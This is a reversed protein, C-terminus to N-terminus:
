RAFGGRWDIACHWASAARSRDPATYEDVLAALRGDFLLDAQTMAILSPATAHWRAIACTRPSPCRVSRRRIPQRLGKTAQSAATLVGLELLLRCVAVLANSAARARPYLVFECAALDPNTAAELLREGLTRLTRDAIRRARAGRLRSMPACLSGSRFEPLGRTPGDLAAPRKYLRACQREVQLNWGTERRSGTLRLFSPINVCSNSRRTM